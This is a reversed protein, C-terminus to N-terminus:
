ARRHALVFDAIQLGSIKALTAAVSLSPEKLGKEIECLHSNSIDAQEALKNQRIKNATRWKRLPHLKAM